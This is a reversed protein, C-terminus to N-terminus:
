DFISTRRCLFGCSCLRKEMHAKILFELVVLKIFSFIPSEFTLNSCYEIERMENLTCANATCNKKWGSHTKNMLKIKLVLM